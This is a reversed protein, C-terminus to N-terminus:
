SVGTFKALKFKCIIIISQFHNYNNLIQINIQIDEGYDLKIHRSASREEM